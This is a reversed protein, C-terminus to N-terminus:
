GRGGGNHKPEDETAPLRGHGQDNSLIYNELAGMDGEPLGLRRFIESVWAKYRECEEMLRANERELERALRAEVIESSVSTKTLSGWVAERDTIPTDTKM